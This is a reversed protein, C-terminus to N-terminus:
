LRSVYTFSVFTTFEPLGTTGWSLLCGVLVNFLMVIVENLHNSLKAAVTPSIAALGFALTAWGIIGNLPIDILM